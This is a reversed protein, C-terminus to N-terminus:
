NDMQIMIQELFEDSVNSMESKDYIYLFNLTTNERTLRIILRGGGSKGGGKSSIAIRVKRMGSYLAAGEYPNNVLSLLVKKFDEPLSKYKKKLRKFATEFDKSFVVKDIM